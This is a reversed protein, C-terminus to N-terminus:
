YPLADTNTKYPLSPSLTSASAHRIVSGKTGVVDSAVTSEDGVTGDRDYKKAATGVFKADTGPFHFCTGWQARLGVTVPNLVEPSLEDSGFFFIPESGAKSCHTGWIGVDCTDLRMRQANLSSDVLFVGATPCKIFDSWLFCQNACNYLAAGVTFPIFAGEGNCWSWVSFITWQGPSTETNYSANLGLFAQWWGYTDCGAGSHYLALFTNPQSFFVAESASFLNGISLCNELTNQQNHGLEFFTGNADFTIGAISLCKINNLRGVGIETSDNFPKSSFTVCPRVVFGGGKVIAPLAVGSAGINSGNNALTTTDPTISTTTFTLSNTGVAVIGFEYIVGTAGDIVWATHSTTVSSFDPNIPGLGNGDANLYTVTYTDGSKAISIDRGTGVEPHIVPRFARAITDRRSDHVFACGVIPSIDGIITLNDLKKTSVPMEYKGCSLKLVQKVPNDSELADLIDQLPSESSDAPPDLNTVIVDISNCVILDNVVLTGINAEIQDVPNIPM